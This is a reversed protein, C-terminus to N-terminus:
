SFAYRIYKKHLQQVRYSLYSYDYNNIIIDDAFKRRKSNNIQANIIRMAQINSINDRKMVRYIQKKINIDVVLVRNVKKQLNKEILLPVIWLFYPSFYKHIMKQSEAEIVPHMLNDLWKKENYNKFIIERLKKRILTGDNNIIEYGYRKIIKNLVITNPQTLKKAILDTDIIKINFTSFINAITSKGSGIGGTIAIIYPNNKKM